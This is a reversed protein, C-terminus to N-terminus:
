ELETLVFFDFIKGREPAESSLRGLSFTLGIIFSISLLSYPILNARFITSKHLHELRNGPLCVSIILHVLESRILKEKVRWRM